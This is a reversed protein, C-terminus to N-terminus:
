EKAEAMGALHRGLIKIIDAETLWDNPDLLVGRAKLLENVRANIEKAALLMREDDNM